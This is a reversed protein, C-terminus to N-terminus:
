DPGTRLWDKPCATEQFSSEIKVKKPTMVLYKRLLDDELVHSFLLNRKKVCYAIFNTDPIFIFFTILYKM